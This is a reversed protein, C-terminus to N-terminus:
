KGSKTTDSTSRQGPKGTSSNGNSKTGASKAGASKAGASKGARAPATTAPAPTAEASPTTSSPEGDAPAGENAPVPTSMVEGSKTVVVIQVDDKTAGDAPITLAKAQEPTVSKVLQGDRYVHVLAGKPANVEIRMNRGLTSIAAAVARVTPPLSP